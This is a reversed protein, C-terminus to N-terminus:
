LVRLFLLNSSVGGKLKDIQSKLAAKGKSFDPKEHWVNEDAPQDVRALEEESPKISAAAKLATDAVM